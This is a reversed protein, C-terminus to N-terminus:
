GAPGGPAPQPRPPRPLASARTGCRRPAPGAADGVPRPAPNAAGSPAVARSPSAGPAKQTHPRKTRCGAAAAPATALRTTHAAARDVHGATALADVRRPSARRRSCGQRPQQRARPCVECKRCCGRRKYHAVSRQSPDPRRRRRRRGVLGVERASCGHKRALPARQPQRHRQRRQRATDREHQQRQRRRPALATRKARRADRLQSRCPLQRTHTHKVRSRRAKPHQYTAAQEPPPGRHYYAMSGSVRIGRSRSLCLPRQREAALRPSARKSGRRRSRSVARWRGRKRALSARSSRGGGRAHSGAAAHRAAPAMHHGRHRCAPCTAPRTAM